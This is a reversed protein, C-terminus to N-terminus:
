IRCEFPEVTMTPYWVWFKSVTVPETFNVPDTVTLSYDLRSGDASPTYRELIESDESQPVGVVDFWPWNLRTTRVVLTDGEWRGISYGLKSRPQGEASASADMHFLRETDYEELRLLIDNGQRVFELPYPQEMITPMGKSTCNLIPSDSIRDFSAVSARAAATLPYRDYDFEPETDEVLLLPQDTPTSWTRYIGLEPASTDGPGSPGERGRVLNAWRPQSRAELVVEDGNALLLNEAFLLTPDRRGPNGAVRISDGVNLLQGDLGVRRLNTLSTMEVTWIQTTGDAGETSVQFRAHPNRWSLETIVGATEVVTDTDFNASVSHHALLPLSFGFLVFIGIFRKSM